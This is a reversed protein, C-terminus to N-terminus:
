EEDGEGAFLSVVTVLLLAGAAWAYPGHAFITVCGLYTLHTAHHARRVAKHNLRHACAIAHDACFKAKSDKFTKM